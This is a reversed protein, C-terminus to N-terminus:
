ISDMRSHREPDYPSLPFMRPQHAHAHYIMGGGKECTMKVYGEADKWFMESRCKVRWGGTLFIALWYRTLLSLTDRLIRSKRLLTFGRYKGVVRTQEIGGIGFVLKADGQTLIRVTSKEADLEGIHADPSSIEGIQKMREIETVAHM